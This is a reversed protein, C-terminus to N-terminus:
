KYDPYVEDVLETAVENMIPLMLAPEEALWIALTPNKSSLHTFTIELSQKNNMCMDHLRDEYHYNGSDDRFHRLFQNFQGQIFAIVEVKKLWVSLPGKVDEFDLMNQMNNADEENPDGNFMQRMREKRM